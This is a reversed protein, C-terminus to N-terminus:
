LAPSVWCLKVCMASIENCMSYFSTMIPTYVLGNFNNLTHM